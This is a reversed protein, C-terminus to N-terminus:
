RQTEWSMGKTLNKRRIVDMCQEFATPEPDPAKAATPLQWVAGAAMLAVVTALDDHGGEPHGIQVGGGATLRRELSALEHLMEPNDLLKLRRTNLLQQLNGYISSKKTASFKVLEITFGHELALMNLAEFQYQDGYVVKVNYQALLRAIEPIVASPDVPTGREPTWRRILDLEVGADSAHGICFGFSDQRFAPDIAAVYFNLSEPKQEAVGPKVAEALLESSLFGTLSDQFTALAERAFAKPDEAHKNELWEKSIHPHSANTLSASTFHM